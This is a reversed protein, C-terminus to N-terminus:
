YCAINDTVMKISKELALNVGEPTTNFACAETEYDFNREKDQKSIM